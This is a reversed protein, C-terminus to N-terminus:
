QVYGQADRFQQVTYVTFIYSIICPELSLQKIIRSDVGASQEYSACCKSYERITREFESDRNRNQISM